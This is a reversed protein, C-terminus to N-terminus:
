PAISITPRSGDTGGLLVVFVSGFNDDPIDFTVTIGTATASSTSITATGAINAGVTADWSTLGRLRVITLLGFSNTLVGDVGQYFVLMAAERWAAGTVTTLGGVTISFDGATGSARMAAHDLGITGAVQLLNTITTTGIGFNGSSNIRVRETAGSNVALYNTGQDAYVSWNVTGDDKEFTLAPQSGAGGSNAGRIVIGAQNQNAPMLVTLPGRTTSPSTTGVGLNGALTFRAVETSGQSIRLNDNYSFITAGSGDRVNRWYSRISGTDALQIESYNGASVGTNSTEVRLAVIAEQGDVEL